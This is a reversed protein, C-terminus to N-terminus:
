TNINLSVKNWVYQQDWGEPERMGSSFIGYKESLTPRAGENLGKGTRIANATFESREMNKLEENGM